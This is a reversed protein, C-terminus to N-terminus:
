LQRSCPSRGDTRAGDAVAAAVMCGMLGIAVAAHERSVALRDWVSASLWPLQRELRPRARQLRSAM